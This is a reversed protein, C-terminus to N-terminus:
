SIVNFSGTLHRTAGFNQSIVNFKGTFHRTAGFNQSIVNIKGTLSGNEWNGTLKTM